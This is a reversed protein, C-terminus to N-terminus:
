ISRNQTIGVKEFTSLLSFSNFMFALSFTSVLYFRLFASWLFVLMSMYRRLSRWSVKLLAVATKIPLSIIFMTKKQSTDYYRQEAPSIIKFTKKHTIGLTKRKSRDMKLSFSSIETLNNWKNIFTLFILQYIAM